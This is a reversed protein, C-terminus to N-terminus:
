AQGVRDKYTDAAAQLASWHKEFDDKMRDMNADIEAQGSAAMDSVKRRASHWDERLKSMQNNFWEESDASADQAQKELESLHADLQDLKKKAIKIYDNKDSM